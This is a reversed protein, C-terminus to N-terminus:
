PSKKELSGFLYGAIGGLLGFVPATQAEAYGLPILMLALLSVLTIGILRLSHVPEWNGKIIIFTELILIIILLLMLAWAFGVVEFLHAEKNIVPNEKLVQMIESIDSVNDTTQASIIPL